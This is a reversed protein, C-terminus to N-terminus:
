ERHKPSHEKGEEAFDVEGEELSVSDQAQHDAEEDDGLHAQSAETMALSPRAMTYDQAKDAPRDEEERARYRRSRPHLRLKM